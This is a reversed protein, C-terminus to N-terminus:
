VRRLHRGVSMASAGFGLLLGLVIVSLAQIPTFFSADLVWRDVTFFAGYNLLVACVGGLGGKLCGEVLFPRRIFADTAGVLRMISIERARQLVSMRITTGIIIISALVFAGGILM